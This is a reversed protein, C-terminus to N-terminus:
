DKGGDGVLILRAENLAEVLVRPIELGLEADGDFIQGDLAIGRGHGGEGVVLRLESPETAQRSYLGPKGNRAGLRKRLARLVDLDLAIEDSVCRGSKLVRLMKGLDDLAV